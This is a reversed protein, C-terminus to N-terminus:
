KLPIEKWKDILGNSINTQPVQEKNNIQISKISVERQLYDSLEGYTIDGKTEQIKKLLYYTFMGHGTEKYPLSSQEGSSATFVVVNGNIINEEQPQIRVGRTALLGQNRAGGSFCADIFVTVKKAPLDSLKRYIEKLEIAFQLDTGSVDVPILYAEKTKEDPLGHGAYYFIIKADSGLAKGLKCIKEIERNMTMMRGNIVLIINEEPIGLTKNCYEYFIRADNEAFQVDAEENLGDQYSHYDENGIILAFTNADKSGSVPIDQDVTSKPPPVIEKSINVTTSPNYDSNVKIRVASYNTSVKTEKYSVSDASNYTYLKSNGPNIVDISLLAFDEAPTLTYRPNEFKLGSLNKDFSEAQGGEIPVKIYIPLLVDFDLRFVENDADYEDGIVSLKIISSQALANVREQTLKEIQLKKSEETVRLQYDATKEYKGKKIWEQLSTNVYGEVDEIISKSNILDLAGTAINKEKIKKTEINTNGINLNGTATNQNKKGIDLTGQTTKQANISCLAMYAIISFFVIKKM